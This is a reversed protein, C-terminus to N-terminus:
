ANNINTKKVEMQSKTQRQLSSVIAQEIRDLRDQGFVTMDNFRFCPVGWQGYSYLEALNDQAWIRWRNDSLYVQAQNWDLGARAVLKSLGKNTDSRIGESWVGRAVSELLEVEKNQSKAYEFLAYTNEVGKGLPDAIFGFPIGYRAAERATDLAIYTSKLKPVQMRRMVMPLVPKIVLPVGYHQSLQRVRILGLYSYPSRSSFFVEIPNDPQKISQEAAVQEASMMTCFSQHSRDFVVESEAQQAVGLHNLRRELYQLRNIGWYWEGGYHLMASLYHGCEKLLAENSHLHHEFCQHNQTIAPDLLLNLSAEDGQWYARFLAMANDLYGPQLEWHLLQSSIQADRQSTTAPANSPFDVLDSYLDSLYGCDEFANEAWLAAAPYMDNQLNLVTRFDYEISYRQELRTLLQLLVYSHADNIRLYVTVRHPEGLRARKKEAKIRKTALRKPSFMARAVYPAITNRM